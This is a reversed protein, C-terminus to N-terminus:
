DLASAGFTLRNTWFPSNLLKVAYTGGIKLDFFQPNHDDPTSSVTLVTMEAEGFYGWKSKKQPSHYQLGLIGTKGSFTGFTTQSYVLNAGGVTFLISDLTTVMKFEQAEPAFIFMTEKQVNGDEDQAYLNVQSIRSNLYAYIFYEGEIGTKKAPVNKAVFLKWKPKHFIMKIKVLPRFSNGKPILFVPIMKTKIKLGDITNNKQKRRLIHALWLAKQTQRIQNQENKEKLTLKTKKTVQEKPEVASTRVTCLFILLIFFFQFRM